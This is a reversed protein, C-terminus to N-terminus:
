LSSIKSDSCIHASFRSMGFGGCFLLCKKWEFFLSIENCEYPCRDLHWVTAKANEKFFGEAEDMFLKKDRKTYLFFSIVEM